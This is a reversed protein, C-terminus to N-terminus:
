EEGVCDAFENAVWRGGPVFCGVLRDLDYGFDYAATYRYKLDEIARVDEFHNLRRQLSELDPMRAVAGRTGSATAQLRSDRDTSRPSSTISWTSCGSPVPKPRSARFWASCTSRRSERRLRSRSTSSPATPM